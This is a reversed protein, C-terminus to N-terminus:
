SCIFSNIQYHNNLRKWQETNFDKAVNIKHLSNKKTGIVPIPHRKNQYESSQISLTGNLTSMAKFWLDDARPALEMFLDENQVDEHLSNPPYLVGWVGIPILAKKNESRADKLNENWKSYPLAEGKSNFRVVYTHNGIVVDPQEVHEEYLRQLWEKDYIVDDDCTIIPLNPFMSLSHILKKHSSHLHSTHIEFLDSQLSVISNPLQEVHNENIWLVIKKPLQSQNMISKITVYLMNFRSPIATLSVVVPLQEKNKTLNEQSAFFFKATYFISHPLEKFVKM